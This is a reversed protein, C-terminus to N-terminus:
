SETPVAVPNADLWDLMEVIGGVLVHVATLAEGRAEAAKPKGITSSSALPPGYAPCVHWRYSGTRENRRTFPNYESGRYVEVRWPGIQVHHEANNGAWGPPLTNTAM